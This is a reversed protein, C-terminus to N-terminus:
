SHLPRKKLQKTLSQAEGGINEPRDIAEVTELKAGAPEPKPQENMVGNNVQQPGHAINTQRLVAPAPNRLQHLTEASMRFQAQAKLGNRLFTDMGKFMGQERAKEMSHLFVMNLLLMQTALLEQVGELNDSQLIQKQQQELAEVVASPNDAVLYKGAYGYAVRSALIHPQQMAWAGREEEPMGEPASITICASKEDPQEADPEADPLASVCEFCLGSGLQQMTEEIVQGCEACKM